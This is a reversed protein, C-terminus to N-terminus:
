KQFSTIVAYALAALLVLVTIFSFPTATKNANTTPKSNRKSSTVLVFVTVALIAAIIIAFKETM